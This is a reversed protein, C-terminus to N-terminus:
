QTILRNFFCSLYKYPNNFTAPAGQALSAFMKLLSDKAEQLDLINNTYYKEFLFFTYNYDKLTRPALGQAKKQFLFEQKLTKYNKADIIFNSVNINKSM